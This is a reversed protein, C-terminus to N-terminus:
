CRFGIAVGTNGMSLWRAGVGINLFDNSYKATQAFSLTYIVQLLIPLFFRKM